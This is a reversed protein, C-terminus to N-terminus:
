DLCQIKFYPVDGHIWMNLRFGTGHILLLSQMARYRLMSEMGFVRTGLVLNSGLFSLTSTQDDPRM